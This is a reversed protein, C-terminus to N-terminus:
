LTAISFKFPDNVTLLIGGGVIVAVAFGTGVWVGVGVGVGSGNGDGVGVIIGVVVGIGEGIVVGTEVWGTPCDDLSGITITTMLTATTAIDIVSVRNSLLLGFYDKTGLNSQIEEM